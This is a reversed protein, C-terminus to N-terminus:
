SRRLAEVAALLANMVLRTPSAPKMMPKSMMQVYMPVKLKSSMKRRTRAGKSSLWTWSANWRQEVAEGTHAAHADEAHEGAPAVAHQGAHGGAHDQFFLVAGVACLVFAGAIAGTAVFAPWRPPTVVDGNAELYPRLYARVGSAVLLLVFSALPLLTAWVFFLGPHNGFDTLSM